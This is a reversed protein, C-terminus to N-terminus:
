VYDNCADRFCPLSGFRNIVVLKCLLFGTSNSKASHILTKVYVYAPLGSVIIKGTVKNGKVAGDIDPHKLVGDSILSKGQTEMRHIIADM